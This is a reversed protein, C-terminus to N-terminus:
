FMSKSKNLLDIDIFTLQRPAQDILSLQYSVLSKQIQDIREVFQTLTTIRNKDTGDFSFATMFDVDSKSFIGSLMLRTDSSIPQHEIVHTMHAFLNDIFALKNTTPPWEFTRALLKTMLVSLGIVISFEKNLIWSYNNRWIDRVPFYRFDDIMQNESALSIKRGRIRNRWREWNLEDPKNDLWTTHVLYNAPHVKYREPFSDFFNGDPIKAKIELAIQKTIELLSWESLRIDTWKGKSNQDIVEKLWQNLPVRESQDLDIKAKIIPYKKIHKKRAKENHEFVEYLIGQGDDFFDQQEDSGKRKKPKAKQIKNFVDISIRSPFLSLISWSIQKSLDLNAIQADWLAIKQPRNLISLLYWILNEFSHSEKRSVQILELTKPSLQFGSRRRPKAAYEMAEYSENFIYGLIFTHTMMAENYFPFKVVLNQILFEKKHCSNLFKICANTKWFTRPESKVYHHSRLLCENLVLLCYAHIYIRSKEELEVSTILDFVSTVQDLGTTQCLEICRKWLKLKDPNERTAKLLLELIRFQKKEIDKELSKIKTKLELVQIDRQDLFTAREAKNKARLFKIDTRKVSNLNVELVKYDPVLKNAVQCLKMAAFSMRTDKRLEEEPFDALLFHELDNASDMLEEMDALDYEESNLQSMKQVTQTMLPKPFKIDVKNNVHDNSTFENKVITYKNAPLSKDEQFKVGTGSVKIWEHYQRIFKFLEKESTSLIVHDDVYKFVAINRHEKIYATVKQDVEWMAINALAGATILGTPLGSFTSTSKLNFKSKLETLNQWGTTDLPFRLMRGITKRLIQTDTRPNLTDPDLLCQEINKIVKAPKISPYFKEFDLGAWYLEKNTGSKWFGKDLYDNKERDSKAQEFLQTEKQDDFDEEKFQSNYGM